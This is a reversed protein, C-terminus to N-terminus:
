DEVLKYKEIIKVFQRVQYPKAMGRVNQFNLMERIGNRIFIRHSGKGGGPRFGFSLVIRCIEEFRVNAPPDSTEMIGHLVFVGSASTAM